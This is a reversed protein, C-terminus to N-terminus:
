SAREVAALLARDVAELRARFSDASVQAVQEVLGSEFTARVDHPLKSLEAALAARQEATLELKALDANRQEFEATLKEISRLADALGIAAAKRATILARARRLRATNEEAAWAARLTAKKSEPLAEITKVAEAFEM